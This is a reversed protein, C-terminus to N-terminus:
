ELYGLAELSERLEDDIAADVARRQRPGREWTPITSARRARLRSRVAERYTGARTGPMDEPLPLGLLYLCLPAIDSLTLDEIRRGQGFAPGRAFFIGPPAEWHHNLDFDYGHDSIVILNTKPELTRLFRGLMRDTFRYREAIAGAFIGGNQRDETFHHQFSDVTYFAAATFRPRYKRMLEPLEYITPDRLSRDILKVGSHSRDIPEGPKLYTRLRGLKPRKGPADIELDAPHHGLADLAGPSRSRLDRLWRRAQPHWGGPGAYVGGSVMFGDVAEAPWTILWRYVGVPYREGIIEWLARSRRLDSTYPARRFGLGPIRELLPFLKYRLGSARPLRDVPRHVGPFRFYVFDRVGHESAPKGTAITTWLIPSLTPRNTALPGWTGAEMFRRFTPLEGAEVMPLIMDDLDAGDILLLVLPWPEAHPKDPIAAPPAAAPEAKKGGGLVMVVALGCTAALVAVMLRRWRGWGAAAVPRRGLLHGAVYWVSALLGGAVMGLAGYLALLDIVLAAREGIEARALGPNLALIRQAIVAGALVGAATGFGLFLRPRWPFPRPQTTGDTAM